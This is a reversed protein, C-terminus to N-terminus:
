APARRRRPRRLPPPHPSPPPPSSGDKGEDAAGAGADKVEGEGAHKREGKGEEGEGLSPPSSSSPFAAGAAAAPKMATWGQAQQTQMRQMITRHHQPTILGVDTMKKLLETADRRLAESVSARNWGVEEVVGDVLAADWGVGGGGGEGGGAKTCLKRLAQMVMGMLAHAHADRGERLWRLLTHLGQDARMRSAVERLYASPADIVQEKLLLVQTPPSTSSLLSSLRLTLTLSDKPNYPFPKDPRTPITSPYSTLPPLVAPAPVPIPHAVAPLPPPVSPSSSSSSPPSSPPPHIVSAPVPPLLPHPASSPSPSLLAPSSSSSASPSPDATAKIIKRQHPATTSMREEGSKRKRTRREEKRKREEEERQRLEEDTWPPPRHPCDRPCTEKAELHKACRRARTKAGKPRGKRKVPGGAGGEEGREGGGGGEGGGAGSPATYADDTATRRRKRPKAVVEEDEEGNIFAEEAKEQARKLELYLPSMEGDEEGGGGGREAREAEAQVRRERDATRQEERERDMDSQVADWYAGEEDEEAARAQRVDPSLASLSHALLASLDADDPEDAEEAQAREDEDEGGRRACEHQRTRSGCRICRYGGDGGAGAAGGAGARNGWRGRRPPGSDTDAHTTTSATDNLRVTSRTKRTAKNWRETRHRDCYVLKVVDLDEDSGVVQMEMRYGAKWGCLVHCSWRCAAGLCQVCTGARQGCVDCVLRWRNRDITELGIVRDVKEADAFGTEPTWIACAAHVWGDGAATPKFAGDTHPCLLCTNFCTLLAPNTATDPHAKLQCSDCLWDGDPIFAVGYCSQHVM